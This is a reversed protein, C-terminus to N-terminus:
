PHEKNTDTHKTHTTNAVQKLQGVYGLRDNHAYNCATQKCSPRLQRPPPLGHVYRGGDTKPNLVLALEGEYAGGCNPLPLLGCGGWGGRYLTQQSM